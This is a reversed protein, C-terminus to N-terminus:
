ERRNRLCLPIRVGNAVDEIGARMAFASDRLDCQPRRERAGHHPGCGM